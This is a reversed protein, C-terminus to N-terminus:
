PHCPTQPSISIVPAEFANRTPDPVAPALLTAGEVELSASHFDGKGSSVSRLTREDLLESCTYRTRIIYPFTEDAVGSQEPVPM